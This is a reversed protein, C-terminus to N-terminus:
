AFQLEGCVTRRELAILLREVSTSWGVAGANFGFRPLVTDYRGGGLLSFGLEEVYGEFVIGTYYALSRLLSFDIWIREQLGRARARALLDALRDIGAYGAETVVLPRVARLIEEQGRSMTLRVLMEGHAADAHANALARLDVLNRDAILRKVDHLADGAYGFGTLVGEIIAVHNIDYRVMRLGVADLAEVASFLSEADTDADATGILELGAETFERMRGEQPEEYRYVPQVYSLRLPLTAERMRTSVLRAIPMTMEPRLVLQSGSRDTLRFVQKSLNQGIGAELVEYRELGPTQVEQYKWREFVGRLITELARKRALEDPLWDRVGVPVRM